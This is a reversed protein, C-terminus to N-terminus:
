KNEPAGARAKRRPKPEDEHGADSPPSPSMPAPAIAAEDDDDVGWGNRLAAAAVAPDTVIAGVPYERGHVEGTPVARFAQTIRVKM